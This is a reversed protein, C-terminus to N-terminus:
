RGSRPNDRAFRYGRRLEELYPLVAMLLTATLIGAIYGSPLPPQKRSLAFEARSWNGPLLASAQDWHLVCVVSIAMFPILELFSHVHQEIPSVERQEVAMSVDWLATLEHAVWCVLMLLILGANIQLFLAAQLPVGVEVFMLLHLGTERMGTTQALGARRHCLWDALGALLWLPLLLYLLYWTSLAEPKM